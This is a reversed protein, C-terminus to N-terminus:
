TSRRSMRDNKEEKKAVKKKADKGEAAAPEDGKSMYWVAGGAVAAGVVAVLAFAIIIKMNKM